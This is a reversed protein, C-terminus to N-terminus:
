DEGFAIGRLLGEVLSDIGATRGCARRALLELLQVVKEHGQDSRLDPRLHELTFHFIGYSAKCDPGADISTEPHAQIAPNNPAQYFVAQGTNFSTTSVNDDCQSGLWPYTVKFPGNGNPELMWDSVVSLPLTVDPSIGKGCNEAYTEELYVVVNIKVPPEKPGPYRQPDWSLHWLANATAQPNACHRASASESMTFDAVWRRQCTRVGSWALKMFVCEGDTADDQYKAIIRDHLAIQWAQRTLETALEQACAFGSMQVGSCDVNRKGEPSDPDDKNIQWHCYMYGPPPQLHDGELPCFHSAVYKLNFYGSQIGAFRSPDCSSGLLASSLAYLNGHRAEIWNTHSVFDQISHAARGFWYLAEHQDKLDDKFDGQPSSYSVANNLYTNFGDNWRKCLTEANPSNDFHQEPTNQHIDSGWGVASKIATLENEGVTNGDGLAEQVIQQHINVEFPLARQPTANLAVVLILLSPKLLRALRLM